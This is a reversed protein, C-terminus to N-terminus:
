AASGKAPGRADEWGRRTMERVVAGVIVTAEPVMSNAPTENVVSTITDDGLSMAAEISARFDAVSLQRLPKGDWCVIPQGGVLKSRSVSWTM